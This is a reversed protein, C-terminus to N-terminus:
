IKSLLLNFNSFYPYKFLFASRYFSIMILTYKYIANVIFQGYVKNPQIDGAEAGGGWVCVCM